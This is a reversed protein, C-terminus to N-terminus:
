ETVGRMMMNVLYSSRRRVKWISTPVSPKCSHVGRKKAPLKKFPDNKASTSVKPAGNKPFKGHVKPEYRVNEKIPQWTAKWLLSLQVTEKTFGEGDPFPIGMTVSDKLAADARVEILCRAFNSRGWSDICMSSTFSDLMIPRKPEVFSAGALKLISVSQVIHTDPSPSGTVENPLQEEGFSNDAFNLMDTSFKELLSQIEESSTGFHLFVKLHTSVAKIAEMTAIREVSTMAMMVDECKGAEIRKTLVDSDKLSKIPVGFLDTVIDVSPLHSTHLGLMMVVLM